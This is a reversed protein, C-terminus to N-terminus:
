KREEGSTELVRDFCQALKRTLERRHFHRLDKQKVRVKLADQRFRGYIEVLIGRIALADDGAAHFGAKFKKVMREVM